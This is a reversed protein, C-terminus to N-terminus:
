RQGARSLALFLCLRKNHKPRQKFSTGRRPSEQPRRPTAPRPFADFPCLGSRFRRPVRPADLAPHLRRPNPYRHGARQLEFRRVLRHFLRVPV